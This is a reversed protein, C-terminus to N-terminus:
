NGLQSCNIRWVGILCLLNVRRAEEPDLDSWGTTM